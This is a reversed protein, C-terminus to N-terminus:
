TTETLTAAAVLTQLTRADMREQRTTPVTTGITVLVGDTTAGGVTDAGLNSDTAEVGITGGGTTLKTGVVDVAALGQVIGLETLVHDTRGM